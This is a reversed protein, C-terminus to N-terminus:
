GYRERLPMWVRWMSGWEGFIGSFLGDGVGAIRVVALVALNGDLVGCFWYWYSVLGNRLWRLISLEGVEFCWIGLFGFGIWLGGDSVVFCLFFWWGGGKECFRKGASKSKAKREAQCVM